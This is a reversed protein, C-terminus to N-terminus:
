EGAGLLADRVLLGQQGGDQTSPANLWSWSLRKRPSSDRSSFSRLAKASSAVAASRRIKSSFTLPREASVM